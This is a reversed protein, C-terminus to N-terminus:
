GIPQKGVSSSFGHSGIFEPGKNGQDCQKGAAGGEGSRVGIIAASSGAVALAAIIV